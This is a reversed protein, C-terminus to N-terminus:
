PGTVFARVNRPTFNEIGELRSGDSRILLPFVDNAGVWRRVLEQYVGPRNVDIFTVHRGARSASECVLSVSAAAKRPFHWPGEEPLPPPGPYASGSSRRRRERRWEVFRVEANAGLLWRVMTSHSEPEEAEGPIGAVFLLLNDGGPGHM